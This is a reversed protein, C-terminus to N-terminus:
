TARGTAARGVDFEACRESCFKHAILLFAALKRFM